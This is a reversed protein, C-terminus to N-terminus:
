SWSLKPGFLEKNFTSDSKLIDKIWFCRPELLPTQNWFNSPTNQHALILFIQCWFPPVCANLWKSMSYACTPNPLGKGFYIFLYKDRRLKPVVTEKKLPNRCPRKIIIQWKPTRAIDKKRYWVLCEQPKETSTAFPGLEESLRKGSICENKAMWPKEFM